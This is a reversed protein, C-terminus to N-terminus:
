YNGFHLHEGVPQVYTLLEAQVGIAGFVSAEIIEIIDFVFQLELQVVDVFGIQEAALIAEMKALPM